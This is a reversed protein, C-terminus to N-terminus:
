KLLSATSQFEKLYFPVAVEVPMFESRDFKEKAITAMCSANFDVEPFFCDPQKCQSKWKVSGGGSFVLQKDGYNKFADEHLICAFPPALMQLETDYVATFVENRRADIMPVIRYDSKEVDRQVAERTATAMCLLTSINILPKNLAYCLGKASAMGVRLGTYSGPGESVAVADLQSFWYGAARMLSQIAPQLFSAQEKQIRCIELAVCKGAASLAVSAEQQSTEICLILAM